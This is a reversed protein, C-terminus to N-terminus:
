RNRGDHVWEFFENGTKHEDILRAGLAGAEEREPLDIWLIKEILDLSRIILSLEEQNVRLTIDEM